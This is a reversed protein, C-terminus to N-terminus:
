FSIFNAVYNILFDFLGHAIVLSVFSCYKFLTRASSLFLGFITSIIIWEIDYSFHALGFILSSLLITILKNNTLTLFRNYFVMRFLYEEAVAVGFFCLLFELVINLGFRMPMAAPIYGLIYIYFFTYVVYLGMGILIQVPMKESTLAVDKTKDRFLKKILLILLIEIWVYILSFINLLVSSPSGSKGVIMMIAFNAIFTLIITSVFLVIIEVLSKKKTM